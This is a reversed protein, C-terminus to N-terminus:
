IVVANYVMDRFFILWLTKTMDEIFKASKSLIQFTADSICQWLLRCTKWMLQIIKRCQRTFRIERKLSRCPFAM